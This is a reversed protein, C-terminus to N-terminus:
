HSELFLKKQQEQFNKLESTLTVAESNVLRQIEEVSTIDKWELFSLLLNWGAISGEEFGDDWAQSATEKIKDEFRLQLYAATQERGEAKGYAYGFVFAAAIAAAFILIFFIKKLM